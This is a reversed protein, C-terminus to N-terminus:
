GECVSRGIRRKWCGAGGQATRTGEKARTTSVIDVGEAEGAVIAAGAMDAEGADESDEAGTLGSRGRRRAAVNNITSGDYLHGEPAPYGSPNEQPHEQPAPQSQM